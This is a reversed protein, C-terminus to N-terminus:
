KAPPKDIPTLAHLYAYIATLDNDTAFASIEKWPMNKPDLPHGTPDIGTRITKVFDVESWKPVLATLNPGPPPGFGGAAGGALDPGHCARCGINAVLYKGYDATPGQPPAVIPQTIPSQANTPFLGAGVFLAGLVNLGNTPTDNQPKNPTAPQSRLYAVISQVDADSLNHFVDSPMIILPRGSKHVGERIARIIEGDTWDKIEGAPTLNPAYLSGVPPAGPGALFDDKSGDLPPKGTTSHCGACFGAIRQGQAIQDATSAVKVSAVPNSAPTYLKFTGMLAVVFVLAFILTLLGALVLAPWKLVKHKSGWARKALWGFLVVLALLVLLGVITGIM